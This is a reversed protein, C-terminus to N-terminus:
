KDNSKMLLHVLLTLGLILCLVGGIEASTSSIPLNPFWLSSVRGTVLSKVGLLILLIALVWYGGSTSQAM